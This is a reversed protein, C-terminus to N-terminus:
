ADGGGRPPPTVPRRKRVPGLWGEFQETTIARCHPCTWSQPRDPPSVIVINFHDWDHVSSFALRVAGGCHPCVADVHWRRSPTFDLPAPMLIEGGRM